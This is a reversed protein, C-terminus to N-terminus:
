FIVWILPARETLLRRVDLWSCIVAYLVIIGSYEYLRRLFCSLRRILWHALDTGQYELGWKLKVCVLKGTQDNLFPKPNM